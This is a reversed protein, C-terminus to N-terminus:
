SPTNISEHNFRRISYIASLKNLKDLVLKDIIEMDKSIHFITSQYATHDNDEFLKYQRDFSAGVLVSGDPLLCLGRSWGGLFIRRDKGDKHWVFDGNAYTDIYEVGMNPIDHGTGFTQILINEEENRLDVLAYLYPIGWLVLIKLIKANAPLSLTQESAPELIYKWVRKDM